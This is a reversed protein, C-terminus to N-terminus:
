RKATASPVSALPLALPESATVMPPAPCSTGAFGPTGPSGPIVTDPTAPTGPITIDPMGPGGPITTSPTGPTGPIVTDSTGPTGPTGSTPRCRTASRLTGPVIPRAQTQAETVQAADLDLPAALTMEFQTGNDLLLDNAASVQVTLKAATPPTANAAGPTPAEPLIVAYGSAYIIAKFLVDVEGHGNFRSPRKVNLITGQVYSGAPVAVNGSAIVPFTTQLYLPDGAKATKMWVPAVVALEMKTGSALTISKVPAEQAALAACGLALVAGWSALRKM